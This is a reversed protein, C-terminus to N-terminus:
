IQSDRMQQIYGNADRRGEWCDDVSVYQYSAAELGSNVMADAQKRILADSVDYSYRNWQELGDATDGCSANAPCFGTFHTNRLFGVIAYSIIRRKRTVM